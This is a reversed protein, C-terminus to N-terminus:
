NKILLKFQPFKGRFVFVSSFQIMYSEKSRKRVTCDIIKKQKKANLCPQTNPFNKKFEHLRRFIPFNTIVGLSKKQLNSM